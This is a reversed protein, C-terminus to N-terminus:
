LEGHPIFDSLKQPQSPSGFSLKSTTVASKFCLVCHKFAKFHQFLMVRELILISLCLHGLVCNYFWKFFYFPLLRLGLFLRATVASMLLLRQAGSDEPFASTHPLFKPDFHLWNGAQSSSCDWIIM